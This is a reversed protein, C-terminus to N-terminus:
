SPKTVLNFAWPSPTSVMASSLGALESLRGSTLGAEMRYTRLNAGIVEGLTSGPQTQQWDSTAM